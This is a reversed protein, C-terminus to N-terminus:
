TQDLFRSKRQAGRFAGGLWLDQQFILRLDKEGWTNGWFIQFFLGCFRGSIGSILSFFVCFRGSIMLPKQSQPFIMASKSTATPSDVQPAM